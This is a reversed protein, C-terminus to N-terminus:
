SVEAIGEITIDSSQIDNSLAIQEIRDISVFKGIIADFEPPTIVTVHAEGAKNWGTFFNLQYKISHSLADRTVKVPMYQINMALATQFPRM